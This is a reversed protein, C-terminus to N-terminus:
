FLVWADSSIGLFGEGHDVVAVSREGRPGLVARGGTTGQGRCFLEGTSCRGIEVVDSLAGREGGRTVTIEGVEGGLLRWDALTCGDISEAIISGNFFFLIPGRDGRIM